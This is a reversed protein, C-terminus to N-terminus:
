KIPDQTQFLYAPSILSMSAVGNIIWNQKPPGQKREGQTPVDDYNGPCKKKKESESAVARSGM